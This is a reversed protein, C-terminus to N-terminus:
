PPTCRGEEALWRMAELVLPDDDSEIRAWDIAAPQDPAVAGEYV